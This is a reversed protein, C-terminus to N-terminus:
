SVMGITQSQLHLHASALRVLTIRRERDIFLRIVGFGPRLGAEQMPAQRWFRLGSATGVRNARTTQALQLDSILGGDM